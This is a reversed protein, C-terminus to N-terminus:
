AARTTGLVAPTVQNVVEAAGLLDQQRQLEAARQAQQNILAEVQERTRMARQPFSVAEAIVKGLESFEVWQMISPDLEALPLAVQMFRSVADVEQISQARALPGEYVVQPDGLEQLPVPPQLIAGHRQMARFVNTVLPALYESQLPTAMPGMIRMMMEFNVSIETASKPTLGQSAASQITDIALLRRIAQRLEEEQFNAVNFNAGLDLTVIADRPNLNRVNNRAYPNLRVDGIVGRDATVVPPAIALQWAKLRLEVAANLTRIDPMAIMIPSRGYVEGSMKQWRPVLVPMEWFGDEFIVHIPDTIPSFGASQGTLPVEASDLVMLINTWPRNKPPVQLSNELSINDGTRPAIAQLLRIQSDPKEAAKERVFQGAMEPGWRRIIAAASMNLKRYVTDVIGDADEAIVYSGAPLTRFVFGPFGSARATKIDMMLAATGFGLLDVRIMHDESAFNSNNFVARARMSTDEMWAGVEQLQNLGHDATIYRFWQMNQPTTLGGMAAAALILAHTPSSDFLFDTEKQGQMVRSIIPDRNPLVFDHIEQWVNRFNSAQVELEQARAAHEQVSMEAM